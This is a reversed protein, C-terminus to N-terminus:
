PTYQLFKKFAEKYQKCSMIKRILEKQDNNMEQKNHMVDKAQDQLSIHKGDLMLLHNYIVNILSPTNRTLHQQHDFQFATAQTTDTFYETPKHCSACSRSNNASLIPDYFLLKGMQKVQALVNEDELLAAKGRLSLNEAPKGGGTNAGLEIFFQEGSSDPQARIQEIFDHLYLSASRQGSEEAPKPAPQRLSTAAPCRRRDAQSV